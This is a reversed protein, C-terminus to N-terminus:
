KIFYNIASEIMLLPLCELEDETAEKVSLFVTIL